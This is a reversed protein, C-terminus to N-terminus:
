EVLCRILRDSRIMSTYELNYEINQCKKPWFRMTFYCEAHYILEWLFVLTIILILITIIWPFLLFLLTHITLITRTTLSIAISTTEKSLLFPISYIFFKWLILWVIGLSIVMNFVIWIPILILSFYFIISRLFFVIYITSLNLLLTKTFFIFSFFLKIQLVLL